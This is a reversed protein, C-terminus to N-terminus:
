RNWFKARKDTKLNPKKKELRRFAEHIESIKVSGKRGREEKVVLAEEILEGVFVKAVGAIGIIFNANCSQNLNNTVFKRISGKNFASRRFAKYRELEEESLTNIIRQLDNSDKRPTNYAVSDNSSSNEM